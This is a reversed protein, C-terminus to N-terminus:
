AHAKTATAQAGETLLARRVAWTGLPTLRPLRLCDPCADDAMAAQWAEFDRWVRRFTGNTM